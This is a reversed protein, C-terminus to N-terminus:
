VTATALAETVRALMEEAHVKETRMADIIEVVRLGLEDSNDILKRAERRSFARAMTIPGLTGDRSVFLPAVDGLSLYVITPRPLHAFREIYSTTHAIIEESTQRVAELSSRLDFPM